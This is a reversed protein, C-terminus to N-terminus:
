QQSVSRQLLDAIFEALKREKIAIDVSIKNLNM